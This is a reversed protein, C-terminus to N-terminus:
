DNDSFLDEPAPPPPPPAGRYIHDQLQRNWLWLKQNDRQIHLLVKTTTLKNRAASVMAQIAAGAVVGGAGVLAVIVDASIPLM